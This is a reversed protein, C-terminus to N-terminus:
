GSSSFVRRITAVLEAEEDSKHLYADAANGLEGDQMLRVYGSYVIVAAGPVLGRIQLLLSDDGPVGMTDLLVVDPNRPPSRPWRRTPRM